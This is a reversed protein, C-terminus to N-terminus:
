FRDHVRMEKITTLALLPCKGSQKICEAEKMCHNLFSSLKTGNTPVHHIIKIFQVKM